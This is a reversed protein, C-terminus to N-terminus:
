LAPGDGDDEHDDYDDCSGGGGGGGGGGRVGGSGRVGGGGCGDGDLHTFFDGTHDQIRSSNELTSAIIHLNGVGTLLQSYM